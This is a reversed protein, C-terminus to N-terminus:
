QYPIHPRTRLIWKHVGQPLGTTHLHEYVVLSRLSRSMEFTKLWCYKGADQERGILGM